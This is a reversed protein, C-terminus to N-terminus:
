SLNRNLVAIITKICEDHNDCHDEENNEYLCDLPNSASVGFGDGFLSPFKRIFLHTQIITMEEKNSKNVLQELDGFFLKFTAAM